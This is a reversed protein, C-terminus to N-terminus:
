FDELNNKKLENDWQEQAITPDKIEYDTAPPHIKKTDVPTRFMGEIKTDTSFTRIMGLIGLATSNIASVVIAWDGISGLFLEDKLLFTLINTILTLVIIRIEKSEIAPKSNM